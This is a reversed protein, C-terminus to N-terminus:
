RSPRSVIAVAAPFMLAAGAGQVIRFFILWAEALSGKPTLGCCASAVAFVLVGIVVMRRRGLMDGLRGGFAFLASLSLLYGNIGM